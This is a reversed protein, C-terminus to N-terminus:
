NDLTVKWTHLVGNRTCPRFIKGQKELRQLVTVIPTRSCSFDHMLQKVTGRGERVQNLILEDINPIRKHLPPSCKRNPRPKKLEKGGVTDLKAVRGIEAMPLTLEAGNIVEQRINWAEQFDIIGSDLCRGIYSLRARLNGSLPHISDSM